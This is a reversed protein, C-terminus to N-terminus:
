KLLYKIILKFIILMINVFSLLFTSNDLSINELKIFNSFIILNTFYNIYKRFLFYIKEIFFQLNFLLNGIWWNDFIRFKKHFIIRYMQIGSEYNKTKHHM